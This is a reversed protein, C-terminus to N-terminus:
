PFSNRANQLARQTLVRVMERRYEASARVDSIPRAEEAALLSAEAMSAEDVRLGRLQKEAEVARIPIPGVAGLAIKIERCKDKGSDLTLAVAVSAIPLDMAKRITHKLYVGATRAPLTPVQILALLESPRLVSKGPSAFFEELPIWREAENRRIKVKAGLSILIPAMDAAPSANCLNGGLTARTRVQFSGLSAAAQSIAPFKERIISSNVIRYISTLAGIQLGEAPDYQIEDLGPVGKLDILIEPNWVRNRMRVLLDTGGALVKARGQYQGMLSLAEDLTSVKKYEFNKM